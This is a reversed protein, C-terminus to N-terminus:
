NKEYNIKEKKAPEKKILQKSEDINSKVFNGSVAGLKRFSNIIIKGEYKLYFLFGLFSSLLFLAGKFNGMYNGCTVLEAIGLAIIAIWVFCAVQKIGLWSLVIAAVILYNSNNLGIKELIKGVIGTAVKANRSFINIFTALVLIVLVSQFIRCIWNKKAFLSLKSKM